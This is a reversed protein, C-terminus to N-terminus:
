EVSFQELIKFLSARDIFDHAKKFDMFVVVCIKNRKKQRM